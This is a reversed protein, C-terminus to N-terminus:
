HANGYYAGQELVFTEFIFDKLQPNIESLPMASVMEHREIDKEKMMTLIFNAEEWSLNKEM